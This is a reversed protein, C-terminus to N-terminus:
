NIRFLAKVKNIQEIPILANCQVDSPLYKALEPLTDTVQKFTNLGLLIQQIDEFSKRANFYCTMYPRLIRMIEEKYKEPFAIERAWASERPMPLDFPVSICNISDLGCIKHLTDFRINWNDPLWEFRVTRTWRIYDNFKEALEFDFDKYRNYIFTIIAKKTEELLTKLSLAFLAKAAKNAVDDRIAGTLKAM